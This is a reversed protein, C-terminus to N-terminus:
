SEEEEGMEGGGSARVNKCLTKIVKVWAPYTKKYELFAFNWSSNLRGLSTVMISPCTYNLIGLFTQMLLVSLGNTDEGGGIGLTADTFFTNVERSRLWLSSLDYLDQWCTSIICLSIQKQLVIHFRAQVPLRKDWVSIHLAWFARDIWNVDVMMKLVMIWLICIELYDKM